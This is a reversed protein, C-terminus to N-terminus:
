GDESTPTAALEAREDTGTRCENFDELEAPGQIPEANNDTLPIPGEGDSIEVGFIDPQNLALVTCVIQSVIIRRNEDDLLRLEAASDVVVPQVGTEENRETFQGNLGTPLLTTLIGLEEYAVMEDPAPGTELAGLLESGTIPRAMPREVVELKSDIGIYYLSVIRFQADLLEPPPETTSTTGQLLEEHGTQPLVEVTEETPIGCAAALLALAIVVAATLARAGLRATAMTSPPPTDLRGPSM